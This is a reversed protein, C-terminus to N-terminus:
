NPVEEFDFIRCIAEARKEVASQHKIPQSLEDVVVAFIFHQYPFIINKLSWLIIM